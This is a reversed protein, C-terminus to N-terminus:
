KAPEVLEALVGLLWQPHLFAVKTGHAGPRPAESLLQAGRDALVRITAGADGVEFALHHLGPGRKALFRAVPSTPSTPELLEIRTEGALLVAVEVQETPVKERGHLTLGLDDVWRPLAADISEVAIAIHHLAKIMPGSSLPPGAEVMTNEAALRV